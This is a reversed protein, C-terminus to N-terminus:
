DCEELTVYKILFVTYAEIACSMDLVGNDVVTSTMRM